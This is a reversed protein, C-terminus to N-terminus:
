HNVEEINANRFDDLGRFKEKLLRDLETNKKLAEKQDQGQRYHHFAWYKELGYLNGREYFDLTLQEFDEYLDLRFKKELGYSYFRFLCEIGYNYSASADELALKRFENYMSPIFMNRLFFSWFRYLTNMEESCGIGMKHRETLCRKHYKKYLQQKFGNEELLKHSPHQFPPFSKPVSGVPPSSGSFKSQPSSSLNLPRPGQSDPPTSGFFFGVADSPPSECINSLSNRGSGHVRFNDPFLRQNYISHQKSSCKNHKTRSNSNGPGVCSSGETFHDPDGLSVIAAEDASCRSKEDKSEIIPKNHRNHSRKSNLEQEYFYLGDNIASALEGSITKSEEGRRDSIRINQTVIVLREVDQDDIIIEDDEDDVREVASPHDNRIAKEELELEEDLMFTSSFENFSDNLNSLVQKRNECSELVIPKVSDAGHSLAPYNSANNLETSSNMTDSQYDLGISSNSKESAIKQSEVICMVKDRTQETDNNISEKVSNEGLSLPDVFYDNPLSNGNTSDMTIENDNKVPSSLPFSSKNILSTPIWKSWEKRRRVLEGQVEITESTQLADLIFPIEANMRKVRKFDAIISIPVWGQEDMLSILYHDNKLNEDSFYYEIQKVINTRLAIIPSTPVPVGPHPVLFPPYPVRVSGPLAAPLCYFAGPPGPINPGGAYGTPGFTPPRAFPRMGTTQQLHFNNAVPRQNYWSPNMQGGQEKANLGRGTSGSDHVHSDTRLSPQFGGNLSPVFAQAPVDSGSMRLQTDARPFPGPLYPCAYGPATIPPTPVRSHFVNLGHMPAPFQHAGKPGHKPAPFSHIGNSGHKPATKHQHAPYPKRPSKINSHGHFKQQELTAPSPATRPVGGGCGDAKSNASPPPSKVSNHNVGGNSKPRQKVDSLAPWSESDAMLPSAVVSTKWPSKPPDGVVIDNTKELQDDGGVNEGMGM